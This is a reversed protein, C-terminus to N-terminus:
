KGYGRRREPEEFLLSMGGAGKTRFTRDSGYATGKNDALARFHYVTNPSLGTITQSFTEGTVKKETPTTNGYADTKGWEFGCLVDPFGGDDDLTGNLTVSSAKINTAPDSTVTLGYGDNFPVVVVFTPEPVLKLDSWEYNKALQYELRNM